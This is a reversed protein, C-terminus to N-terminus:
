SFIVRILKESILMEDRLIYVVLRANAALDRVSWDAVFANSARNSSLPRRGGVRLGSVSM